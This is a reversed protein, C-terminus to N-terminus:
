GPRKWGAADRRDPVGREREGEADGGPQEDAAGQGRHGDGEGDEGGDM